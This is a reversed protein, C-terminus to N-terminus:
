SNVVDFIATAYTYSTTWIHCLTSSLMLPNNRLSRPTKVGDRHQAFQNMLCARFM